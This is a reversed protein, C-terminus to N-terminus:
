AALMFPAFTVGDFHVTAGHKGAYAQLARVLLRRQCETAETVVHLGDDLAVVTFLPLDAITALQDPGFREVLHNAFNTVISAELTM